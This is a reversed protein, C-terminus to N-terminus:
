RNIVVYPGPQQTTYSVKVNSRSCGLIALPHWIERIIFLCFWSNSQRGKDPLGLQEHYHTTGTKPWPM